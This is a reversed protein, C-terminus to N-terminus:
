YNKRSKPANEAGSMEEDGARAHKGRTYEGGEDTRGNYDVKKMDSYFSTSSDEQGHTEGLTRNVGGGGVRCFKRTADSDPMLSSKHVLPVSFIYPTFTNLM